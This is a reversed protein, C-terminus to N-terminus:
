RRHDDKLEDMARQHDVHLENIYKQQEDIRNTFTTADEDRQQQFKTMIEARSPQSSRLDKPKVAGGFCIVLGKQSKFCTEILDITSISPQSRRVETIQDYKRTAPEELTKNKTKRTEFYRTELTPPNEDKGGMEWSIVRFPKSGTRHLLGDELKARNRCNQECKKQVVAWMHDQDMPSIEKFSKIRVPCINGDRVIFGLRRSFENQNKGVARKQYFEVKLKNASQLQVVRKCKNRGRGDVKKNVKVLGKTMVAVEVDGSDLTDNLERSSGGYTQARDTKYNKNVQYPAHHISDASYISGRREFEVLDMLEEDTCSRAVRDNNTYDLSDPRNCSSNRQSLDSACKSAYIRRM